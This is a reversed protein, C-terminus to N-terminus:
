RNGYQVCFYNLFGREQLLKIVQAQNAKFLCLVFGCDYDLDIESLYKVPIGNLEELKVQGDSIVYADIKPLLDQYRRATLGTGYVYVRSYRGCFEQLAPKLIKKQLEFFYEFPGYQQRVQDAIQDLYYQLNVENMSAYEASEVIGSYYGADQALYSWLYPLYQLEDEMMDKLRSLIHGRVWVDNSVRYPAKHESIQCNLGMREAVLRVGAFAGNWGKGVDAFYKAFNLQPPMLLGLRPEQALRQEIGSVHSGNKLLNEWVGYFASKGTCSRCKQSSMDADHLVCVRDYICFGALYNNLRCPAITQCCFGSKQYPALLEECHSAVRVDCEQPLTQLYELVYEASTRHSIFVVVATSGTLKADSPSVIYQFHLTRQLDAVNLTRIVNDWILNVDYSTERDIYHIAKHMSEQSQEELLDFEDALPKKKFFPFNRKKILEYPIKAYQGYNNEPNTSNNADIDALVDYTYGLSAFHPTFRLEYERVTQNFSQFYDMNEWYSRFHSSHLMESRIVLFFSQIHEPYEDIGAKHYPGNKTLGWFDANRGGMEDFIDRMPCFPGFMSDNALVLEDYDSIADWGIYSCLADKFGGADFGINKRYYIQDAYQGINEKGRAIREM